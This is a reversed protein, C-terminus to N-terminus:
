NAKQAAIAVIVKPLLKAALAAHGRATLHLHDSQLQFREGDVARTGTVITVIHRAKLRDVIAKVNAAHAAKLNPPVRDEPHDLIVISTGDPVQVNLNALIHMTLQKDVGKNIVRVDYGKAKLMAELQEPYAKGASVGYGRTNSGGLAVIQITGALSASTSIVLIVTLLLARRVLANM